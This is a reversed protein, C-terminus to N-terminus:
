SAISEIREAIDTIIDLVNSSHQQLKIYPDDDLDQEWSNEAFRFNVDLNINDLNVSEIGIQKLINNASELLYFKEKLCAFYEDKLIFFNNKKEEYSQDLSFIQAKNIKGGFNFIKRYFNRLDNDLSEIKPMLSEIKSNRNDNSSNVFNETLQGVKEIKELLNFGINQITQIFENLKKVCENKNNKDIYQFEFSYKLNNLNVPEIEAKSLIENVDTYLNYM